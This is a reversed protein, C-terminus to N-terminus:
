GYISDNNTDNDLQMVANTASLRNMQVSIVVNYVHAYLKRTKRCIIM